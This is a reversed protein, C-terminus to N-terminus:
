ALVKKIKWFGSTKKKTSTALTSTSPLQPVSTSVATTPASAQVVFEKTTDGNHM